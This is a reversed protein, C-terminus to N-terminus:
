GMNLKIQKSVRHTTCVPTVFHSSFYKLSVIVVYINRHSCMYHVGDYQLRYTVIHSIYHCSSREASSFTRPVNFIEKLFTNTSHSVRYSKCYFKRQPIKVTDDISTLRRSRANADMAKESQLIKIM